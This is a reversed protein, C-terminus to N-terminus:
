NLKMEVIEATHEVHEAAPQGSIIDFIRVVKPSMPDILALVDSSLSIHRANL